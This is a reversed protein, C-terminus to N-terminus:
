LDDLAELFFDADESFGLHNEVDKSWYVLWRWGEMETRTSKAIGRGLPESPDPPTASMLPRPGVDWDSGRTFQCNAISVAWKYIDYIYIYVYSGGYNYM